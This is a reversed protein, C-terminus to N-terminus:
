PRLRPLLHIRRYERQLPQYQWVDASCGEFTGTGFGAIGGVGVMRANSTLKVSGSVSCNEFEASAICGAFPAIFCNQETEVEVRINLLTLDHIKAGSLTSFLGAGVTDYEKLNGDVSRTVDEGVTTVSLNYITHGGGDLEGSFAFPTWAEGAM